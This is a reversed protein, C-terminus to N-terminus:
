ENGLLVFLLSPCTLCTLISPSQRTAINAILAITADLARATFFGVFLLVINLFQGTEAFASFPSGFSSQM